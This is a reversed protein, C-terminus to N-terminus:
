PIKAPESATAAMGSAEVRAISRIAEGPNSEGVSAVVLAVFPLM